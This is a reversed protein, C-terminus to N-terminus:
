FDKSKQRIRQLMEELDILSSAELKLWSINSLKALKQKNSMREAYEKNSMMGAFEIITGHVLFDGRMLGNPNLKEHHPYLPEKGHEVGNKTLYECIAREGLSLCHHGDTAISQHGGRGRQRASLLGAAELMHAWSGFLLNVSDKWPLLSSVKMAYQLEQDDIGSRFLENMVKRKQNGGTPIFGFYDSYIQTGLLYNIRREEDSFDWRRFFDTSASLGMELCVGCYIPPILGPWEFLSQPLFEDNCIVCITKEFHECKYNNEVFLELIKDSIIGKRELPGYKEIKKFERDSAIEDLVEFFNSSICGLTDGLQGTVNAQPLGNRRSSESIYQLWMGKSTEVAKSFAELDFQILNFAERIRAQQNSNLDTWFTWHNQYYNNVTLTEPYSKSGCTHIAFDFAEGTVANSSMIENKVKIERSFSSDKLRKKVVSSRLKEYNERYLAFLVETENLGTMVGSNHV